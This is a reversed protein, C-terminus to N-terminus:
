QDSQARRPKPVTGIVGVQALRDLDQGSLGLRGCLIAENDQGLTPAVRRVPLPDPGDRFAASSQWHMGIFPRDLRRWFGRAQLHPDDVLAMPTRVVGAAIGQAQLITMAEDPERRSTWAGIAAELVDQQVRRQDADLEALDLRHLVACLSRWMTQTTVSIAIWADQGRCRFCGQPVHVPHRNGIRPSAAGTASQVILAPAVFPLMCEVQSLDINQGQGTAQRHLLAVMLAAAANFGGVPDGYATQNMTPPDDAFGTITPLGSAQELTSGYGRCASWANSSGFAPMSLMVLDPKVAKLVAYDLGLRTLIESSYNDIVADAGAVLRKLLAVGDPHTLDLTVDLKNRNMLQFWLTKEYRQEAIFSARLDTGRWWDPYQCAEVKIIEAGLEGLHRAATPGAWGMTLDVIRVGQLPLAPHPAVPQHSSRLPPNSPPDHWTATSAALLPATGGARPPTQTLHQPLVPGEFTTGGVRIPVFAGRDRHVRQGLLEAMDPVVVIPLKHELSQEFWDTATWTQWVPQFLADIEAAHALRDTSIAYRPNKALDPMGLMACIGRWQGPTVITVGVRGHKTPYIGVPYNRGFRNIGARPRSTGEDWAVAAEYEAVNVATEHISVSFRRGGSTRDYLGAASAIFAALGGLIATQCDTPLIPPGEARGTLAVLGGLAHIVAETAAFGAYPGHDGFWSLSTIVLDPRQLRLAQHWALGGDPRGDLLLDADQLLGALAQPTELVSRKNTNLWAFLGSEGNNLIPPFSRLPDGGPPELKIVDAGFDAFLKGCYDLGVGTGLQLVRYASLPM